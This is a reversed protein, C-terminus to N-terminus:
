KIFQNTRSHWWPVTLCICARFLEKFQFVGIALIQCILIVAATYIGTDSAAYILGDNIVISNVNVESSNEGIFYTDRFENKAVDFVVIGFSMSIYLYDNDCVVFQNKDISIESLVIDYVSNVSLDEGILQLLGDEFGVCLINLNDNYVMASSVKTAYKSAVSVKQYREENLDYLFLANDTRAYLKENNILVEEVHNYSFVDSWKSYDVRQSFGSFHVIFLLISFLVRM